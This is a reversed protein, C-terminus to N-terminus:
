KIIKKLYKKLIMGIDMRKNAEIYSYFISLLLMASGILYGFPFGVIFTLVLTLLVFFFQISFIKIFPIDFRFNYKSKAVLYIIVFYILYSLLFAYGIGILGFYYYCIINSSLMIINFIMETLFFIKKDGKALFIFGIAWSAAKFLVGLLAFQVLGIISNFDTTLLIKIILPITSLLLIMIPSLILIAIEAQDNVFKIILKNDENVASLRPFYDTGMASFVMGVYGTIIAWAASYLGVEEFGGTRSIFIRILFMVGVSIFGSIMVVGGLKVMELGEYYSEKYDIAIKEFKVKKTFYWSLFLNNISAIIIAPVIGEIGFYYYLPVSFILGLFSGLINASALQKIKRLGQLLALQGGNLAQFFLTISLWIFAWTYEVSGFSWQSLQSSLVLTIFAGIIGTFFVWRRLTVITRGIINSNEDNAAASITRIASFNLGLNTISSILGTASSFLGMIGVGATGLLVAIFKSRIIQILIQFLQVGGFISTAKVIQNYSSKNTM